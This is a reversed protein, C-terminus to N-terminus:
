AFPRRLRVEALQAGGLEVLKEIGDDIAFGESRYFALARENNKLVWLTVDAHGSSALHSAACAWLARGVGARWHAPDVYIAWLEATRPSADPDRSGAVSIWGVIADAVVAVWVATTDKALIKTWVSERRDISLADLYADPVIGRYAVRWAAVHTTAIGRADSLIARRVHM